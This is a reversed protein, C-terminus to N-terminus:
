RYRLHSAITGIIWFTAMVPWIVFMSMKPFGVGELFGYSFTVVATAAFALGLAEFQMRRQMEDMRRLQRLVVWCIAIGPLMPLLSLIIRFAPGGDITNLVSISAILAIIYAAMCAGFELFYRYRAPIRM